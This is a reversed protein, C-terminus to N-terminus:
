PETEEVSKIAVGGRGGGGRPLVAERRAAADAAMVAARSEAEAARARPSCPLPAVPLV